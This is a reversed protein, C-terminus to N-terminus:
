AYTFQDAPAKPSVAKNVTARVDVVGPEHPPSVVTCETTSACKVSKGKAAGFKITTGVTGVPFGAGTIEVSTGGLRSGNSPDVRTVTPLFKFRDASSVSSSGIPTSVSVGVTGATSPPAVAVVESPSQSHFSLAETAGFRVSTIGTMNAGDITVSTGGAVPGSKPSIRTVTPASVAARTLSEIEFESGVREHFYLTGGDVSLSPAEAFGTIVSVREPTGFAESTSARKAEYVSPPVGISPSAATFFIELGDSSISPAYNLAGVQNVAKLFTASDRSLAFSGKTKRYMAITASSPPSGLRFDGVSILLTTGDASVAADFDVFGPSPASVGPVLHIGTTEGDSFHGVYITSLTEFYSRTSVFYLNGERDTSPTGSLAGEENVGAGLIEGGYTFTLADVRRAFELRPIGPAVNSTNFLLYQGDPTISPEMASGSYGSISVQQPEGFPAFEAGL